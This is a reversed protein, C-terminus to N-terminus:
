FEIARGGRWATVDTPDSPPVGGYHGRDDSSTAGVARTAAWARTAAIQEAQTVSLPVTNRVARVLDAETVARRDAFADFCASVVAQEIEAGSFGESVAALREALEADIVLDKAAATGPV